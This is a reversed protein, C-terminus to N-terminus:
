PRSAIIQDIAAAVQPVLDLRNGLLPLSGVGAFACTSNLEHDMLKGNQIAASARGVLAVFQMRLEAESTGAPPPPPPAVPSAAVTSGPPPPVVPAAAPSPIAMLKKLESEVTQIMTTEVGRKKRWTGDANFTKAASHIRIDWPLGQKDLVAGTAPPVPAAPEPNPIVLMPGANSLPTAAPDAPPPPPTSKSFVAAPDQILEPKGAEPKISAIAERLEASDPVHIPGKEMQGAGPFTLIFGAVAEREDKTLEAPNVTIQM